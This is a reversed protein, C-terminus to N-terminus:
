LFSLMKYDIFGKLIQLSWLVIEIIILVLVTKHRHMWISNSLAGQIGSM